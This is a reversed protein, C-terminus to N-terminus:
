RAPSQSPNAKELKEIRQQMAAMQKMMPCGMAESGQHGMGCSEGAGCQGQMQGHMPMQGQMNMHGGPMQMLPTSQALAPAGAWILIVTSLLIKANM